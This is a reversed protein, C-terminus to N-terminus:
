KVGRIWCEFSILAVGVLGGIINVLWGLVTAEAAFWLLFACWDLFNSRPATGNWAHVFAVALVAFGGLWVIVTGIAIGVVGVVREDDDM